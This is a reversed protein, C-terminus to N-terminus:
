LLGEERLEHLYTEYLEVAEPIMEEYWDDWDGTKDGGILLIATRRPDFVFLIRVEFNAGGVVLEKLNKIKSGKISGVVPRKLNPGREQLHDVVATVREFQEQPLSDYWERFEDTVEVEWV